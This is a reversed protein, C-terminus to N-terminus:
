SAPKPNSQDTAVQIFGYRRLLRGRYRGTGFDDDPEPPLESLRSVMAAFIYYYMGAGGYLASGVALQVFLAVMLGLLGTALVADRRDGMKRLSSFAMRLPTSVMWLWLLAGPFGVEALSRGLENEIFRTGKAGELDLEGSYVLRGAGIGTAIGNGLPRRLALNIGKSLPGLSREIATAVNLSREIRKAGAGAVDRLIYVGALLMISIGVAIVARRRSILTMVGLGFLLGVMPGRSGSALLGGLGALATAVAVLRLLNNRTWGLYGLGLLASLVAMTGFYGPSTYIACARVAMIPKFGREFSEVGSDDQNSRPSPAADPDTVEDEDAPAVGARYFATLEYFGPIARTHEYGINGQVIGYVCIPLQLFVLFTSFAVLRGRSSLMQYIPYYLPMWLVWVRLGAVALLISRTSPAFMMAVCYCTFMVAPMTLPQHLWRYDRGRQSVWFLRLLMLWMFLDKVLMTFMSPAAGKYLAETTAVLVLAYLGAESSVLAAVIMVLFLGLAMALVVGASNALLFTAVAFAVALGFALLQFLGKHADPSM